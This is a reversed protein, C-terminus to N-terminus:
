ADPVGVAGAARRRAHYALMSQRRQEKQEPTLHWGHSKRRTHVISACDKCPRGIADAVKPAMQVMYDIFVGCVSLRQGEFLRGRTIHYPASGFSHRLLMLADPSMFRNGPVGRLDHSM